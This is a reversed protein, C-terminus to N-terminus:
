VSLHMTALSLMLTYATESSARGRNHPCQSQSCCLAHPTVPPVLCCSSCCACREFMAETHLVCQLTDHMTYLVFYTCSSCQLGSGRRSGAPGAGMNFHIGTDGLRSIQRLLSCPCIGDSSVHHPNIGDPKVTVEDAQAGPTTIEVMTLALDAVFEREEAADHKACQHQDPVFGNCDVAKSSEM